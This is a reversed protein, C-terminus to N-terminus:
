VTEINIAMQAVGTSNRVILIIEINYQQITTFLVIHLILMATSISHIVDYNM